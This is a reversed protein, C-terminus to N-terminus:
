PTAAPRLIYKGTRSLKRFAASVMNGESMWDGIIVDIQEEAEAAM